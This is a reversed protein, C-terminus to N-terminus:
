TSLSLLAGANKWWDDMVSELWAQVRAHKREDVDVALPCEDGFAAHLAAVSAANWEPHFQMGIRRPGIMYMQQACGASGALRQAGPPLTYTDSHWELFEFTAGDEFDIATWGAEPVPLRHVRGGSADALLQAGLCIGVIAADPSLARLWRREERVWPVDDDVGAPGGLLVVRMCDEGPLEGLDARVVDLAIGRSAAWDAIGGTGEAPHHQVVTLKM